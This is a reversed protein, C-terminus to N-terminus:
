GNSIVIKGKNNYAIGVGNGSPCPVFTSQIYAVTAQRIATFAYCCGGYESIPLSGSSVSNACFQQGASEAYFANSQANLAADLCADTSLVTKEKITINSDIKLGMANIGVKSYGNHFIITLISLIIFKKM